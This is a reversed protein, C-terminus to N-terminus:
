DPEIARRLADPMTELWRDLAKRDAANLNILWQRSGLKRSVKVATAHAAKPTSGTLRQAEAKLASRTVGDQAFALLAEQHGSPAAAIVGALTFPLGARMAQLVPQPWNLLRLKNKTFSEWSEGLSKFQEAVLAHTEGAPEKLLQMLRARAEERSLGLTLATLDLKADVEEMVNLNERQLNEVLAAMRAEQDSLDRILVPVETLGALQAARWRREGAVIEYGSEVPRVLLPQLVGQERISQALEQLSEESFFQRPQDAAPHLETVPVSQVQAPERALEASAGLLAELNGRPAPRRRTM